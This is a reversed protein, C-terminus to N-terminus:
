GTFETLAGYQMRHWTGDAHQMVIPIERGLRGGPPFPQHLQDDQALRWQEVSQGCPCTPEDDTMLVM